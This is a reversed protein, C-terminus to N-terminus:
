DVEVMITQEYTFLDIARGIQHSVLELDLSCTM